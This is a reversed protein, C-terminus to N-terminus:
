ASKSDVKESVVESSDIAYGEMHHCESLYKGCLPCIEKECYSQHFEGPKAGCQTCAVLAQDRTMKEGDTFVVEIYHKGEMLKIEKELIQITEEINSGLNVKAIEIVGYGTYTEMNFISKAFADTRKIDTCTGNRKHDAREDADHIHINGVRDKQLPSLAFKLKDSIVHGIDLCLKLEPYAKLITDIRDINIRDRGVIHKMSQQKAKPFIDLSRIVNLNELHIDVNLDHAKLYAYVRDLMEYTLIMDEEISSGLAHHLVANIKGGTEPIIYKLQGLIHINDETIEPLHIQYVKGKANLRRALDINYELFDVAELVSFNVEIGKIVDSELVYELIDRDADVESPIYGILYKM